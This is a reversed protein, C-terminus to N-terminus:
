DFSRGKREEAEIWDGVSTVYWREKDTDFLLTPLYSDGTNLYIAVTHGYYRDVWEGQISEVGYMDLLENLAVEVRDQRSPPNYCRSVWQQVSEFTDPDLRGDLLKRAKLATSRDVGLRREITNVSPIM